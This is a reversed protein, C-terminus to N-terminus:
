DSYEGNTKKAHAIDVKNKILISSLSFLFTLIISSDYNSQQNEIKTGHITSISYNYCIKRVHSITQHPTTWQAQESIGSINLPISAKFM